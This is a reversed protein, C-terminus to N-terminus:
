RIWLQQGSGLVKCYIPMGRHIAQLNVKRGLNIEIERHWDAGAVLWEGLAWNHNEIPPSLMLAIDIDIDNDSIAAREARSGFFWVESIAAKAAAWRQIIQLSGDPLRSVVQKAERMLTVSYCEMKGAANNLFRLKAPM